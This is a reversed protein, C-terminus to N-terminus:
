RAGGAVAGLIADLRDLSRQNTMVHITDDEQLLAASGPTQARGGRTILGVRFGAEDLQRISTGAASAPVRREVLVHSATPDTWDVEGAPPLVVRLVRACTWTVTAVTPIGLREYV